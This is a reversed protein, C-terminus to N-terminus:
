AELVEYLEPLKVKRLGLPSRVDNVLSLAMEDLIKFIFEADFIYSFPEVM